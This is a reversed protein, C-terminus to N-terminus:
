RGAIPLLRAMVAPFMQGVPPGRRLAPRSDKRGNDVAADSVLRPEL